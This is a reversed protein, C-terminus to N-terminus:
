FCKEIECYREQGRRTRVRIDQIQFVAVSDGSRDFTYPIVLNRDFRVVSIFELNVERDHFSDLRIPIELDLHRVPRTNNGLHLAHVTVAFLQQKNIALRDGNWKAFQAIHILRVIVEVPFREDVVREVYVVAIRVTQVRAERSLAHEFEAVMPM